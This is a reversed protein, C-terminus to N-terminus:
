HRSVKSLYFVWLVNSMGTPEFRRGPLLVLENNCVPRYGLLFYQRVTEVCMYFCLGVQSCNYAMMLATLMPGGAPPLVRMVMSGVVVFVLYAAVVAVAADLSVLLWGATLSGSGTAALEPNLFTLIQAEAEALYM